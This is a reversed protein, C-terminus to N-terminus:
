HMELHWVACVPFPAAAISNGDATKIAWLDERLCIAGMLGAYTEVIGVDGRQIGHSQAIGIATMCHDTHAVIGGAHKIIRYAGRASHYSGRWGSAPDRDTKRLVWDAVSMLCDCEGWVFARSRLETLFLSLTDPAAM